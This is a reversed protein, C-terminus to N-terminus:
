ITSNIMKLKNNDGWFEMPEYDSYPYYGLNLQIYKGKNQLYNLVFDKVKVPQGSCCNVIGKVSNQLAVALINRAVENVPLYDRIQEGGSMNFYVDGLELAKDLQSILSKPSQGEGYMYFLRIWKFSVNDNKCKAELFIRLNNKAQAYANEPLPLDDEHLCGSKMGYEFCTGTVTLDKLGNRILNSLLQCHRPLNDTLHFDLNYNPLGEWALHIMLDPCNFFIFYNDSLELSKLDLEIFEVKQFWSKRSASLKNSSTAIVHYGRSLLEDIVYGGIFGTAGTVLVKKM